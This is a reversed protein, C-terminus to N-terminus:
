IKGISKWYNVYGIFVNLTKMRCTRCEVNIEMRSVYQSFLGMLWRFDDTPVKLTDNYTAIIQAIRPIDSEAIKDIGGAGYGTYREM